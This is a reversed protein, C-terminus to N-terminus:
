IGNRSGYEYTSEVALDRHDDLKFPLEYFIDNEGDGM